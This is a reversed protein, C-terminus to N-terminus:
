LISVPPARSGVPLTPWPLFVATADGSWAAGAHHARVPAEQWASAAPFGAGACHFVCCQDAHGRTPAPAAPDGGLQAQAKTLCVSDAFIGAEGGTVFGLALGQLVLMYAVLLSATTSGLQWNRPTRTKM